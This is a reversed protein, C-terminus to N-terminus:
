TMGFMARGVCAAIAIMGFAFGVFAAFVTVEYEQVMLALAGHVFSVFIVTLGIVVMVHNADM